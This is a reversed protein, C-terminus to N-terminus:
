QMSPLRFRWIPRDVKAGLHMQFARFLRDWKDSEFLCEPVFPNAAFYVAEGKGYRHATIAPTGDAFVALVRVDPKATEVLWGNDESWGNRGFIPYIPLSTGVLCDRVWESKQLVLFNRPKHAITRIGFIKERWSSLNEGNIDWSFISPDGSIVVGGKRVFEEIQRVVSKRQYTGFPIYVARYKSLSRGGRALSDDDVFEFWSGVREGLLAYATYLENANTSPGKSRHSDASYLIAVEPDDPIKIARMSTVVKSIYLMMKWRDPHTFRPNDMQYFDIHSAGARLSQSVWELLDEPTMDYGAYDFAQVIARVPKRTIDRLFKTGFGHNYLGRGKIREASSAYPDCDFIDGYKAMLAFDFPVFGTMFWYDCPSYLANPDVAKLAEYMTKKSDAYKAAMWRNFAIWRFPRNVDDALYEPDGPAPMAYKGFGFDRLVEEACRRAFPGWESIPGEPFNISPEDKGMYAFVYPKGKFREAQAKLYEVAANIYAPDVLSVSPEASTSAHKKPNLIEAGAKIAASRVNSMECAVDFKVGFQRYVEEAVESYGPLGYYYLGNEGAERFMALQEQKWQEDTFKAALEPPLNKKNLNHTWAIVTYGGPFDSLLEEFLPSRTRLLRLKSWDANRLLSTPTSSPPLEKLSVRAYAIEGSGSAGLVVKGSSTLIPTRFAECFKEWEGAKYMDSERPFSLRIVGASANGEGLRNLFIVLDGACAPSSRRYLFSLEYVANPKLRMTESITAHAAPVIACNSGNPGEGSGLRILAKDKGYLEWNELGMSFNSNTLLNQARCAAAMAIFVLCVIFILRGM